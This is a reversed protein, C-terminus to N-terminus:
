YSGRSISEYLSSSINSHIANHFGDQLPLLQYSVAHFLVHQLYIALDLLIVSVTVAGWGPLAFMHLLGWRHQEALLAVGVAAVPFILRVLLTDLIVVGLNGPWRRLRGIPGARRPAVLEWVAMAAFIGAFAGLRIAPEHAFLTEAPNM